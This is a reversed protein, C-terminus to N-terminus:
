NQGELPLPYVRRASSDGGGSRKEYSCRWHPQSSREDATHVQLHLLEIPRLGLEALLMLGDRWRRGANDEPLATLLEVIQADRRFADGKQIQIVRADRRGVHRKLDSPPLWIDPFNESQVWHSLFQALSQARIQRMRSGSECKRQSRFM